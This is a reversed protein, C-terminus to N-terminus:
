KIKKPDSLTSPTPRYPDHNTVKLKLQLEALVKDIAAKRWSSIIEEGISSYSYEVGTICVSCIGYCCYGLGRSTYDYESNNDLSCLVM